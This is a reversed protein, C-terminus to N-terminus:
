LLKKLRRRISGFFGIYKSSYDIIKSRNNRLNNAMVSFARGAEGSKVVSSFQIEDAEPVAGILKVGTLSSIEEPSLNDGSAILDGRERNIAMFVNELGYSYLLSKVKDGDRISSVHPTIVIIAEEASAAARKFEDGIGAPCDILVYDFQSSLETIIRGFTRGEGFSGNKGFRAPLLFLNDLNLVPILAQKVRCRGSMCDFVDYSVNGEAGLTVDLNNLGLDGDVAVVREGALALRYALNATLTTKGVGGKGSTIVIRRGM